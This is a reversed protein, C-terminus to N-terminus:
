SCKEENEKIRPTKRPFEVAAVAVATSASASAAANIKNLFTLLVHLM